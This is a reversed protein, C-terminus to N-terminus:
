LVSIFDVSRELELVKMLGHLEHISKGPDRMTFIVVRVQFDSIVSAGHMETSMSNPAQRIVVEDTGGAYVGQQISCVPPETRSIM